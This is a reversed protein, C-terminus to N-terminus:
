RCGKLVGALAAKEQKTVTLAYKAKVGVWRAAYECHFEARPPLWKDPTKSGKDQNADKDVALLVDLDNFYTNREADTWAWAGGRWAAGLAVLHDSEIRSATRYRYPLDAGTFPDRLVGSLVVCPNRDGVRLEDLDRILLDSRTDCGNRGGVGDTDDNWFGFRDREYTQWNKGPEVTLRALLTTADAPAPPFDSLPPAPSAIPLGPSPTPADPTLRSLVRTHVLGIAAVGAVALVIVVALAGILRAWRGWPRGM